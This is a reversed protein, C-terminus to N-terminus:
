RGTGILTGRQMECDTGEEGWQSRVGGDEESGNWLMNDDTEVLASSICCKEFGKVIVKPSIRQRAMIIWM